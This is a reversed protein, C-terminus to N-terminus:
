APKPRSAVICKEDVADLTTLLLRRKGNLNADEWRQPLDDLLKGAEKAADV